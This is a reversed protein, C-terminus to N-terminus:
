KLSGGNREKMELVAGRGAVEICHGRLEICYNKFKELIHRNYFDESKERWDEGKLLEMDITKMGNFNARSYLAGFEEESLSYDDSMKYIIKFFEEDLLLEAM